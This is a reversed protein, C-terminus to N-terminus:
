NLILISILGFLRFLHVVLCCNCLLNGADFSALLLEGALEEPDFRLMDLLVFSVLWIHADFIAILFSLDMPCLEVAELVSMLLHDILVVSAKCLTLIAVITPIGVDSGSLLWDLSGTSLLFLLLLLLDLFLGLLFGLLLHTLRSGRKYNETVVKRKAVIPLIWSILCSLCVLSSLRFPLPDVRHIGVDSLM